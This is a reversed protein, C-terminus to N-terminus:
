FSKNVLYNVVEKALEIPLAQRQCKTLNDFDQTCKAGRGFADLEKLTLDHANTFINTPKTTPFGYSSLTLEKIMGRNKVLFNTMPPYHRMKGRPNEIFFFTPKIAEVLALSKKLIKIHLKAKETKPNFRDDLHYGGSALSWIDCPPSLWMAFIDKTGALDYIDGPTLDLVDTRLDPECVGKRKRIDITKSIFGANNLEKSITGSGSFIEICTHM